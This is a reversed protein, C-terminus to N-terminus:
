QFCVRAFISKETLDTEFANLIRFIPVVRNLAASVVVIVVHLRTDHRNYFACHASFNLKTYFISERRLCEDFRACHVGRAAIASMSLSVEPRLKARGRALSTVVSYM